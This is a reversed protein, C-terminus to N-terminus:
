EGVEFDSLTIVMYKRNNAEWLLLKCFGFKKLFYHIVAANPVAYGSVLVLDDKKADVLKTKLDAVLNDVGFVNVRGETLVKLVGFQEANKYNHAGENVVYVTVPTGM